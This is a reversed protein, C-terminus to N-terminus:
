GAGAAPGPPPAAPRAPEERDRGRGSPGIPPSAARAVSAFEQGGRGRAEGGRRRRGPGGLLARHRGLGRRRPRRGGAHGAVHDEEVHAAAVAVGQAHLRLVADEVDFGGAPREPIGTGGVHVVEELVPAARSQSASLSATSAAGSPRKM